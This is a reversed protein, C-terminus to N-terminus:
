AAQSTASAAKSAIWVVRNRGKNKAHYLAKDARRVLDSSALITGDVEAVGFSATV